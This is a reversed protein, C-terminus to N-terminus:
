IIVMTIGFTSNLNAVVVRRQEGNFNSTEVKGTYADAWYLREETYDITLGNAWKINTSILTRRGTGDFYSREIKAVVGWDTWFLYRDIFFLNSRYFKQSEQLCISQHGPFYTCCGM